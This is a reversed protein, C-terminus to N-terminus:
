ELKLLIENIDMRKQAQQLLTIARKRRINHLEKVLQRQKKSQMIGLKTSVM